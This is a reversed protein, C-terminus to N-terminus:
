GVNKPIQCIQSQHFRNVFRFKFNNKAVQGQWDDDQDFRTGRGHRPRHVIIGDLPRCHGNM